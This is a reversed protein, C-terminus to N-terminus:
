KQLHKNNEFNSHLKLTDAKNIQPESHIAKQSTEGCSLAIAVTLIILLIPKM